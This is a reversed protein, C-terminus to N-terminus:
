QWNILRHETRSWNADADRKAASWRDAERQSTAAAATAASISILSSRNGPRQQLQSLNFRVVDLSWNMVWTSQWSQWHGSRIEQWNKRQRGQRDTQRDTQRDACAMRHLKREACCIVRRMWGQVQMQMQKVPETWDLETWLIVATIPLWQSAIGRLLWINGMLLWYIFLLNTWFVFVISQNISQNVAGYSGDRRSHYGYRSVKIIHM